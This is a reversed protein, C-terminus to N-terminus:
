VQIILLSLPTVHFDGERKCWFSSLINLTPSSSPFALSSILIEWVMVVCALYTYPLAAVRGRWLRQLAFAVFRETHATSNRTETLMM